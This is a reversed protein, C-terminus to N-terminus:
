GSTAVSPSSRIAVATAAPVVADSDSSSAWPRSTMRPSSATPARGGDGRDLGVDRGAGVGQLDLVADAAPENVSVIM